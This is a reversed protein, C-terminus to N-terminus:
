EGTEDTAPTLDLHFVCTVGDQVLVTHDRLSPNPDRKKLAKEMLQFVPCQACAMDEKEAIEHAVEAFRCGQLSCVVGEYTKEFGYGIVLEHERLYDGLSALADVVLGAWGFPAIDQKM